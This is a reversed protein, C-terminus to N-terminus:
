RITVPPLNADSTLQNVIIVSKHPNSIQGFRSLEPLFHACILVGTGRFIELLFDINEILLM